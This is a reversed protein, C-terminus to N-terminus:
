NSYRNITSQRVKKNNIDDEIQKQILTLIEPHVTVVTTDVGEPVETVNFPIVEGRFIYNSEIIPVETIGEESNHRYYTNSSSDHICLYEQTDNSNFVLTDKVWTLFDADNRLVYKDGEMAFNIRPLISNDKCYRIIRRKLRRARTPEVQYSRGSRSSIRVDRMHIHPTGEISEWAVLCLVQVLYNTFNEVTFGDANIDSMMVNIHGSGTCFSQWFPVTSSDHGIKLKPLHSHLYRSSIEAMTVSSRGGQLEGLKLKNEGNIYLQVQVFLNNVTHTNGESNNLTIEPFLLDFGLIDYSFVRRGGPVRTGYRVNFAIDWCGEFVDNACRITTRFEAFSDPTMARGSMTLRGKEYQRLVWSFDLFKKSLKIRKKLQVKTTM